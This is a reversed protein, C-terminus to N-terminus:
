DGREAAHHPQRAQHKARSDHTPRAPSQTEAAPPPAPTEPVALLSAGAPLVFFAERPLGLFSGLRSLLDEVKEAATPQSTSLVFKM